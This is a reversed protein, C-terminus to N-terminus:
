LGVERPWLLLWQYQHPLDEQSSLTALERRVSCSGVFTLPPNLLPLWPLLTSVVVGALARGTGVGAVELWPGPSLRGPQCAGKVGPPPLELSARCILLFAHNQSRLNLVEFAMNSFLFICPNM